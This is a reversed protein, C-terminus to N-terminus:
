SKDCIDYFFSKIGSLPSEETLLVHLYTTDFILNLVLVRNNLTPAPNKWEEDCCIGRM